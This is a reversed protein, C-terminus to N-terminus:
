KKRRGEQDQHMSSLKLWVEQLRKKELAARQEEEELQRWLRQVNPDIEAM